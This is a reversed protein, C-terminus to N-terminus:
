MYYDEKKALTEKLTKIAEIKKSEVEKFEPVEYFDLKPLAEALKKYTEAAKVLEETSCNQNGDLQFLYGLSKEDTIIKGNEINLHRRNKGFIFNIYLDKNRCTINAAIPFFTYSIHEIHGLKTGAYSLVATRIREINEDAWANFEVLKKFNTGVSGIYEKMSDFEFEKDLPFTFPKEYDNYSFNYPYFSLIFETPYNSWELRLGYDKYMYTGRVYNDVTTYIDPKLGIECLFNYIQKEIPEFNVNDHIKQQKNINTKVIM